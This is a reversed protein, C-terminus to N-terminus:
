GGSVPALLEVCDVEDLVFNDSVFCDAVCARVRPGLLDSGVGSFRRSLGRRLDAVSSGAGLDVDVANAIETAFKGYFKVQMQRSRVLGESSCHLLLRGRAQDFIRPM